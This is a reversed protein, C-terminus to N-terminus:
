LFCFLLYLAVNIIIRILRPDIELALAYRNVFEGNEVIRFSCKDYNSSVLNLLGVRLAAVAHFFRRYIEYPLERVLGVVKTLVHNSKHLFHDHVCTHLSRSV